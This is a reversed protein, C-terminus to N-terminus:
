APAVGVPRLAGHAAAGRRVRAVRDAQVNDVKDRRVQWRQELVDVAALHRQLATLLHPYLRRLGRDSVVVHVEDLPQEVDDGIRVDREDQQSHVIGFHLNM